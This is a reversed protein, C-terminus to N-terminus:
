SVDERLQNRLESIQRYQLALSHPCNLHDM